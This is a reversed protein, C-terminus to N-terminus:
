EGESGTCTQMRGGFLGSVGFLSILILVGGAAIKLTIPDAFIVVGLFAAFLIRSATVLSGSSASIYRYGWTLFMQGLYGLVGVLLIFHVTDASPMVAWPVMLAGTLLTGIGMQYFLIVYTSDYKRLQRLTSLAFGAAIGSLLAFIDGKRVQSFDAAVILYVGAMALILFIFHFPNIGERNMFPSLIFVFVPYTMNLMNANTVTTHQIGLFFLTVSTVNSIVRLLVLDLRVPSLSKKRSLQYPLMAMFGLLFRFFSVEMAQLASHTTVLKVFVTMVAFSLAALLLLIIGRAM